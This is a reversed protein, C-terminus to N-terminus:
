EYWEDTKSSRAQRVFWRGNDTAMTVQGKFIAVKVRSGDRDRAKLTYDFTRSDADSSVLRIDIVEGSITNSFKSVYSNFDGMRQRQAYSLTEYAERYNGNTIARYYNRFTQVAPDNSNSSSSELPIEVGHDWNSYDVNGSKFTHKFHGHHKGHDFSGEDTQIIQGDRYWTLTGRGQAYLINGDSIIDGSWTISEGDQPEPNWVYAGTNFDKIWHIDNALPDIAATNGAPKVGEKDAGSNAADLLTEKKVSNEEAVKNEIKEGGCGSLIAVFFIMLCFFLKTGRM